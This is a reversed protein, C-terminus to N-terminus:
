GILRSFSFFMRMFANRVDFFSELPFQVPEQEAIFIGEEFGQNM